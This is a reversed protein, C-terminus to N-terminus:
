GINMQRIHNSLAILKAPDLNYFNTSISSAVLFANVWPYGRINDISVWSALAIPFDWSYERMNAVKQADAQIWTWPWSTTIVDMYKQAVKCANRLDIPQKQWKFAVWGFVLWNFWYNLKADIFQQWFDEWNIEKIMPNDFRVWDINLWSLLRFHNVPNEVLMNVWIWINPFVSRVISLINMFWKTNYEHDVLFIQEIWNELSIKVNNLTEFLERAHIVVFLTHKAPFLKGYKQNKDNLHEM